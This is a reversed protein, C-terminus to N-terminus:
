MGHSVKTYIKGSYDQIIVEIKEVSNETSDYEINKNFEVKELKIDEQKRFSEEYSVQDCVSKGNKLIDFEEKVKDNSYIKIKIDKMKLLNNNVLKDLEKDMLDYRNEVNVSFSLEVHNNSISKSEPSVDIQVRDNLRSLFDIETIRESKITKDNKVVVKFEYNRKYPLILQSKYNLNGLDEALVEKWSTVENNKEEEEGYLLYVKSGKDLDHLSWKLTFTVKELDKTIELISYDVNYIWKNENYIKNMTNTVDSHISDVKTSVQEIRDYNRYLRDTIRDMSFYIRMNLFFITVLFGGLLKDKM